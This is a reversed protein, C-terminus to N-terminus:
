KVSDDTESFLDHDRQPAVERARFSFWFTEFTAGLHLSSSCQSDFYFLLPLVTSVTPCICHRVKKEASSNLYRNLISEIEM